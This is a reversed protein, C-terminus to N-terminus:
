APLWHADRTDAAQLKGIDCRRLVLFNGCPLRDPTPSSSVPALAPRNFLLGQHRGTRLVLHTAALRECFKLFASGYIGIEILLAAVSNSILVEALDALIEQEAEEIDIKVFSVPRGRGVLELLQDLTICTVTLSDAGGVRVISSLGEAEGHLSLPSTGSHAALALEHVSVNIPSSARLDGARGPHPEFSHVSGDQGVLSSLLYTYLGRHAGIDAVVDGEAVLRPLWYLSNREYQGRYLWPGFTPDELSLLNSSGGIM